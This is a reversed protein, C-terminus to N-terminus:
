EAHTDEAAQSSHEIAADLKRALDEGLEPKEHPFTAAWRRFAARVAEANRRSPDVRFAMVARTYDCWANPARAVRPAITAHTIPPLRM